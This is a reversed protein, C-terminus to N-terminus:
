DADYAFSIFPKAEGLSILIGRRPVCDIHQVPKVSYALSTGMKIKGYRPLLISIIIARKGNRVICASTFIIFFCSSTVIHHHHHHHHHHRRRCRRHHHHHSTLIM